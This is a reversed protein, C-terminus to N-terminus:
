GRIRFPASLDMTGLDSLATVRAVYAGAPAKTLGDLTGDWVAQGPGSPADQATLSRVVTGGPTEITLTVTAPRSLQFRAVLGASQTSRSESGDPRLADPRVLVDPRRVVVRSLDDVATVRWHWVGETDVTSWTFRYTGPARSGTDVVHVVGDPGVVSASVTSPRVIKYALHEGAALNTRGLVTASPPPAYVGAYGLLLAEKVARGGSIRPRSLLKGDFAASVSGGSDLAAATVAGLAVMTKALEFVSMGASFGPQKGDVAM